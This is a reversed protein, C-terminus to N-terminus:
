RGRSRCRGPLVEGAEAEAQCVWRRLTQANMGSRVAIGVVRDRLRRGTPPPFVLFSTISESVPRSDYREVATREHRAPFTTRM